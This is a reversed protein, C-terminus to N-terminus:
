TYTLAFRAFSSNFGEFEMPVSLNEEELQQLEISEMDEMHSLLKAIDEAFQLNKEDGAYLNVLRM